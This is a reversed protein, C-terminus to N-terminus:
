RRVQTVPLHGGSSPRGRHVALAVGLGLLGGGTMLVASGFDPTRGPLLIQVFEIILSAVGVLAIAPLAIWGRRGRGAPMRSVACGLLVGFPVFLLVQRMVHTHARLTSSRHLGAFPMRTFQEWQTRLVAPDDTFDFPWWFFLIPIALYAVAAAAWRLAPGFRDPQGIGMGPAASTSRSEIFWVMAAGFVVGIGGVLVDQTATFRSMVFLQLFEIVAVLGIGLAVAALLSPFRVERTRRAVVLMGLAGLPVCLLVDFFCELLFAPTATVDSLPSLAIKGDRYKDYLDGPHLTLDLPMISTLVLLGYYTKLAWLWRGSPRLERRFSRLWAMLRQGTALWAVIGIVAGICQAYVDFRSPTRAVWLQGFEITLGLAVSGVL